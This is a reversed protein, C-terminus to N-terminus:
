ADPEPAALYRLATLAYVSAAEVVEAVAVYENPRHALPLLGPGLAAITPIGALSWNTADTFAPMVGRPVTRGLVDACASAAADVLAHEADIESPPFWTLEPVWEAVVDLKPDEARLRELFASVDAQLRELTMGPVTRVDVGCEAEGPYIGYFLGGSLTVGLNLTAGDPLGFEDAFRTLVRALGVSANVSPLRDSLSSHMQTGRVRLRFCSIGRSAVGTYEWPTTLGTPEGVLAADAAVHRGALFRVGFASGAEEDASLVVKLTGPLEGAEALASGAYVMAAVAGKMDTSGLGYLKGDRVVPQLPDTRWHTPDGVPKTDSHGGLM